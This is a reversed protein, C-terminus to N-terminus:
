GRSAGATRGPEGAGDRTDPAPAARRDRLGIILRVALGALLAWFAAGIGAATVGSAAVLFTVIAAERGRPEAAASALSSGLIGFLAIGAAAVVLGDPAATVVASLAASAFALPVYACGTTFAAIWRRAPDRGADPSASLAASIAALNIAHGGAPAGAITGAATVALAPRWPTRYGFGSLVATGPVNQSAMTVLYLPVAIGVLAQWTFAPATWSLHPTFAGADPSDAALAAVAVALATGLAAANAWRPAFALVALWVALVPLLVAPHRATATVPALCLPLVVGALMAQSIPAPISGALDGLRPIAATAAILVGTVLFAGVAAPWGGAVAGGAALVAAGPTSWALMVPTKYRWALLMTGLGLTLCLVLLGSAAQGATAGAGRLGALVVAFSSTYGVFAAVLGASLPQWLTQRM